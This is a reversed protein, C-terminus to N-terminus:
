TRIRIKPDPMCTKIGIPNPWYISCPKRCFSSPWYSCPDSLIWNYWHWYQQSSTSKLISLMHCQIALYLTSLSLNARIDRSSGRQRTIDEKVWDQQIEALESNDTRQIVQDTQGAKGLMRWRHGPHYKSQEVGPWQDSPLLLSGQSYNHPNMAPTKM